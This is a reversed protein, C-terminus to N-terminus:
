NKVAKLLLNRLEWTACSSSSTGSIYKFAVYVSTGNIQSMDIDGSATWAFNGQSLTAPIPNWTAQNPDGTGLYDTSYFVQLGQGASGYKMASEFKLVETNYLDLNMAPSILWDENENYVGGAYGSITMGYQTIGWIQNGVVSNQTFDGIESTWPENLLYSYPDPQFNKIDNADRIYLQYTGNYISLEGIITGLGSPLTEGAFSAYKSTRVVILGGTQDKLDRDDASSVEQGCFVNTGGEIFSVSDFRVITNLDAASLGGITKLAPEIPKEPLGDKFFHEAMYVQPIRGIGGQYLYGLQVMGGYTGLYLGKCKIYLKQGVPYDNYLGTADLKIEIGGTSDQIVLTKYLNGSVDNAVVYGVVITDSEIKFPTSVGSSAYLDKLGMITINATLNPHPIYVEPQDFDDKVCSTTSLIGALAIIGAIFKLKNM